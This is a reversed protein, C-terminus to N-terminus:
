TLYQPTTARRKEVFREHVRYILGIKDIKKEKKSSKKQHIQLHWIYGTSFLDIDLTTLDALENLLLYYFYV